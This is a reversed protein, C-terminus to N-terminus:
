ALYSRIQLHKALSTLIDIIQKTDLLHIQLVSEMLKSFYYTTLM